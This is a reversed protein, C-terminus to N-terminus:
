DEPPPGAMLWFPLRLDPVRADDILDAVERPLKKKVFGPYLFRASRISPPQSGNKDTFGYESALEAVVQVKGSKAKIRPDLALAAVARGTFEPTECIEKPVALKLKDWEGTEMMKLTQETLVVGPWLSVTSIGHQKLEVDMDKILRDVGAKGVGYAVNFTYSLGGFSSIGVILPNTKRGGGFDGRAGQVLPPNQLMVPVAHCSCLYHSRLGVTHCADWIEAGQEWFNTFLDKQKPIAFANNVLIDLRGERSQVQEFVARTQEDNAHDCKIPICKGGAAQIEAQTQRLTGGLPDAPFDLSRGTIYVTAGREALAIAVGKGIGRSAGTVVAVQGDLTKFASAFYATAIISLLASQALGIRSSVKMASSFISVKM